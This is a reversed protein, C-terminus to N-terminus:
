IKQGDVDPKSTNHVSCLLRANNPSTKCGVSWPLIRVIELDKYNCVSCDSVACKRMKGYLASKDDDTFMRKGDCETGDTILKKIATKHTEIKWSKV